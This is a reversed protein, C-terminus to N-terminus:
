GHVDLCNYKIIVSVDIFSIYQIYRDKVSLHRIEAWLWHSVVTVRLTCCWRFQLCLQATSLLSWAMWHVVHTKYSEHCFIEVFRRSRLGMGPSVILQCKTLTTIQWLVRDISQTTCHFDFGPVAIKLSRRSVRKAHTRGQVSVEHLHMVPISHTDLWTLVRLISLSNTQLVHSSKFQRSCSDAQSSKILCIVHPIKIYMGHM